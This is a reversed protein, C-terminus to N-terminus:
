CGEGPGAHRTRQTPHPRPWTNLDEGMLMWRRYSHAGGTVAEWPEGAMLRLYHARCVPWTALHHRADVTLDTWLQEAAGSCNLVLCQPTSGTNRDPLDQPDVEPLPEM